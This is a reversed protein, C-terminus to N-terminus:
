PSTRHNRLFSRLEKVSVFAREVPEGNHKYLWISRTRKEKLGTMLQDFSLHGLSDRVVNSYIGEIFNMPSSKKVTEGAVKFYVIQHHEKKYLGYVAMDKLQFLVMTGAHVTNIVSLVDAENIM